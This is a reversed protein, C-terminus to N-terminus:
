NKEGRGGWCVIDIEIDNDELISTLERMINKLKLVHFPNNNLDSTEISLYELFHYESSLVPSIDILTTTSISINIVQNVYVKSRKM